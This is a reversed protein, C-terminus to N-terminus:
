NGRDRTRLIFDVSQSGSAIIEVYGSADMDFGYDEYTWIASEGAALVVEDVRIANADSVSSSSKYRLTVTTSATSERNFASAWYFERAIIGRLGKGGSLPRSALATGDAKNGFSTRYNRYFM